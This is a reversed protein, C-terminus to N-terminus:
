KKGFKPKGFSPKETTTSAGVSDKPRKDKIWQQVQEATLGDKYTINDFYPEDKALQQGIETENVIEEASAGDARYFTKIVTKETISGKYIGYEMQVRVKCEIDTLDELVMVEKDAGKKGIPLTAAIPDSVADLDAIIVLKNFTDWGFNKTGDNNFLRMNGYLPQKQGNYDVYLEVVPSKETGGMFPVIINVDYVGSKSIYKSGGGGEQIDEKKTSKTFFAM